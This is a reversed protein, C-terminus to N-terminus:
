PKFSCAAEGAEEFCKDYTNELDDQVIWADGHIAKITLDKDLTAVRFKWGAPLKLKDGLHALQEYTVSPDVIQSLAQMVWPTGEPDDLIFVPQGKLFGMQSNRHGITPKYATSGKKGVEMDKPLDVTMFWHTQLGDLTTIDPAIPLEIWDNVWARPGNKFVGLMNYQKKLAEPDVKAWLDAPCSQLPNAQNNLFSTNYVAAKLNKTIPNGGILFVECYGMARLNELKKVTAKASEDPVAKSCGALVLVALLGITKLGVGIRATNATINM